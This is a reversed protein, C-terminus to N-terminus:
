AVACRSQSHHPSPPPPLAARKTERKEDQAVGNAIAALGVTQKTADFRHVAPGGFSHRTPERAAHATLSAAM